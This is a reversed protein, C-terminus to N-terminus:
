PRMGCYKEFAQEVARANEAPAGLSYIGNFSAVFGIFGGKDTGLCDVYSKVEDFIDQVTGQIATTQYGIPCCFCIKGAFDKGMEQIGNLVPQGPNLGDLGIDVFDQIIDYIRGCCHMIVDMGLSHALEIQKKYRPMFIERILDGSILLSTQTGWDDALCIADFGEKACARILDEEAGFIIDAFREVNEREILLDMMFDEFGRAFSMITFGSLIFDAVFYKDPYKEMFPRAKDFRGPRDAQLPVYTDLQSWDTIIPDKVVGLKFETGTEDWSFGWETILGNDGGYMEEVGLMVIDSKAIRDTGYYMLPAYPPNEFHLARKVVEKRTMTSEAKGANLM